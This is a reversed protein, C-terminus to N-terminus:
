STNKNQKKFWINYKNDDLEEIQNPNEKLEQVIAEQMTKYADLYTKAEETRNNMNHYCYIQLEYPFNALDKQIKELTIPM